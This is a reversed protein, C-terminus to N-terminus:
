QSQTEAEFLKAVARTYHGHLKSKLVVDGNYNLAGLDIGVYTLMQMQLLADLVRYLSFLYRYGHRSFEEGKNHVIARRARVIRGALDDIESAGDRVFFSEYERMVSTLKKHLNPDDDNMSGYYAEFAMCAVAYKTELYKNAEEVSNAFYANMAYAAQDYLRFWSAIMEPFRDKVDEYRVLPHNLELPEFPVGLGEGLVPIGNRFEPWHEEARVDNEHVIVYRPDVQHNNILAVFNALRHAVRVFYDSEKVPSPPTIWVRVIKLVTLSVSSNDADMAFHFQLLTGNDLRVEVDAPIMVPHTPKFEREREPETGRLSQMQWSGGRRGYMWESLGGIEMLATAFGKESIVSM